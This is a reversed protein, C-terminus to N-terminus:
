SGSERAMQQERQQVLQRGREKEAELDFAAPAKLETGNRRASEAWRWLARDRAKGPPPCQPDAVLKSAILAVDHERFQDQVAWLQGTGFQAAVADNGAPGKPSAAERTAQGPVSVRGVQLSSQTNLNQTENRGTVDRRTPASRRASRGRSKRADRIDKAASRKREVERLHYGNREMFGHVEFAGESMENLCGAAVLQAVVDDDSLPHLDMRRSIGRLKIRTLVGDPAHKTVFMWLLGLAGITGKLDTRFLEMLHLAKPHDPLDADM